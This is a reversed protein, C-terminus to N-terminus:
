SQWSIYEVYMSTRLAYEIEKQVGLSDQWGDMKLVHLEDCADMLQRNLLWWSDADLALDNDVALQHFYMIPSLALTGKKTHFLVCDRAQEFRHQRIAPDDDSYPSAIYIMTM